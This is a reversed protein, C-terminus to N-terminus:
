KIITYAKNKGNSMKKVVINLGKQVQTRKIGDIGYIGTEITEADIDTATIGSAYGEAGLFQVSAAAGYSGKPAVYRVYRYPRTNYVSIETANDTSTPDNAITAMRVANEFDANDAGEVYGGTMNSPYASYPCFTFKSIVMDTGEGYDYGYWVGDANDSIFYTTMTANGLANTVNDTNSESTIVDGKRGRVRSTIFELPESKESTGIENSATLCYYYTTNNTATSDIIGTYGDIADLLEEATFERVATYDGDKSESRYLTFNQAGDVPQWEIFVQGTAHMAISLDQPVEPFALESTTVEITDSSTAGSVNKAEVCYYYTTNSKLGTHTYATTNIVDEAAAFWSNKDTSYKVTYYNTSDTATWNLKVNTAGAVATLRPKGASCTDAIQLSINDFNAKSYAADDLSSWGRTAFIGVNCDNGWGLISKSGIKAWVIGDISQYATFTNGERQIRLWQRTSTHTNGNYATRSQGSSTRAYAYTYRGDTGTLTIIFMRANADNSNRVMIGFNDTRNDARQRYDICATFTFDKSSVPQYFFTCNDTTKTLENAYSIITASQNLGEYYYAKGNGANSTGIEALQWGNPYDSATGSVATASKVASYESIGSNNVLAIRYYYKVGPTVTSDAYTTNNKMTYTNIVEFGTTPNTSREIVSGNVLSADPRKWSLYICNIGGVVQMVDPAAPIDLPEYLKESGEKAYTLIPYSAIEWGNEYIGRLSIMQQCYPAELGKDIVYHNYILEPAPYGSINGLNTTSIDNFNREVGTTLDSGACSQYFEWYTRQHTIQYETLYELATLLLNDQYAWLDEEYGQTEAVKCLTTAFLPGIEAHPIDRGMEVSQGKDNIVMNTLCGGGFGTESDGYKYYRIAENFMEEDELFVGMCLNCFNAPGDWGPWSSCDGLWGKTAPYFKERCLTSFAEREDSTWGDYLRLMEAAEVIISIPLMFLEASVNDTTITSTWTNIINRACEAHKKATAEYGTSDNLVYWMLMNYYAAQADRAAKQRNGDSGGIDGNISGTTNYTNAAKWDKKLMLWADYWPSKQARIMSKMRQLDSESTSCGPHKWEREAQTAVCVFLTAFVLFLKKMQYQNKFKIEINSKSIRKNITISVIIKYIHM